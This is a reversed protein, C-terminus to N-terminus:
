GSRAAAHLALAEHLARQFHDLDFPKQLQASVALGAVRTGLDVANYGSMLIVPPLQERALERLVEDGSLRPMTLDLILVAFAGRRERFAELFEVGDATAVVEFGLRELMETVLLRIGTEDDAVLAARRAGNSPAAVDPGAPDAQHESAPFLLRLSTGAGLRTDVKLAGGHGRVIGQVASLGLGRGVFKTTFFPDFIQAKTEETMGAGNDTVELFTYRGAPLDDPTYGDLAAADVDAAGTSVDITGSGEGLAESANTILNLVIQRLQTSDAEIIPTNPALALRLDAKKSITSKLLGAIEAVLDPLALRKVVMRRRGSYALMQRALDASREAAVRVHELREHVSPDLSPSALLVSAHGLVITLLNNFDHALGGALVGVAELKQTEAFKAQLEEREREARKRETVDRYTGAVAEPKGEEDVITSVTLSVDVPRGDKALRITELPEAPFPGGRRGRALLEAVEQRRDEPVLPSGNRGIMEDATYGFIREAAPNWAVVTGDFTARVMAEQSAEVMAALERYQRREDLLRELVYQIVISFLALGLVMLAGGRWGSAPYEPPGAIAVPMWFALGISALVVALQARTGYVAVWLAPVLYL